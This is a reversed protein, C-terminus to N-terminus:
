AQKGLGLRRYEWYSFAWFFIFSLIVPVIFIFLIASPFLLALLLLAANIRLTISGIRHTNKWVRDDSLTWPTKIGIFFNRKSYQMIWGFYYLLIALSPIIYYSMNFEYGLSNLVSSLYLGFFFLIVAAKIRYIYDLFLEINTKMVAIKPILSLLVYTVLSILPIVFLAENSSGYGIIEGWVNWQTPVSSPFKGSLAFGFVFMLVVLLLSPFERKDFKAMTLYHFKGRKYM